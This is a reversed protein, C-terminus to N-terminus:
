INEDGEIVKILRDHIEEVSFTYGSHKLIRHNMNIHTENELLKAFQGTPNQEIAIKVEARILYDFVIKHVPYIQKFFLFGIDDRDLKELAEKILYYNSGWSVILYKFDESGIFEPPIAAKRLLGLKKFRKQVSKKRITPDESIEGSEDHTHSDADVLGDGYGPVGRPSIGSETFKYREYSSDMKVINKNIELSDINLSNINYYSDVLYQDPLIFVPVHYEQTIDFARQTLMFADEISGPAFIVKPFFGAGAYLVLEIDEQCTRTPMGTAPGPRMGVVIVIPLETMGALSVGESMLSFGGGATSVFARAGAYSAGLAKNIVSLEDESQDVIMDFELAHQALFTGIGTSPAMPYFCVFNCGGAIAGLGIAQTGDIIYDDMVEPTKEIEFEKTFTNLKLLEEAKEYGINAAKINNEIIEQGKSRFNEALLSHLIENDVKLLRMIAGLAIINAYIKGGISKSLEEFPIEIKESVLEPIVDIFRKEGIILTNPSIREKLHPVAQESLPILIDIRDVFARVAKSSVRITTSNVGGRVRSMYERTAFVNFGSKKLTKTLLTEVTQIGQGAAGCLVISIDIKYNQHKM